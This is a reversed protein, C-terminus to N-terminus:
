QLMMSPQMQQLQRLPTVATDNGDYYESDVNLPDCTDTFGWRRSFPWFIFFARGVINERPVTGWYRSDSSRVSNDGMMFYHNEPVNVVLGESLARQALHGHYGGKKSYIRSIAPINFDTIAKFTDAGKEKVYVLNDIIKLTDGPMGILRKIFFYGTKRCPLGETNFVTIDGRRPERFQFTFRDVFLHDGLSLWGHCLTEGKKFPKMYQLYGYRKFDANEGDIKKEMQCYKFVHDFSGPLHYTLGGINFQSWPFVVSRSYEIISGPDLTGARKIKADAAQVSYLAYQLFAPMHWLPSSGDPLKTDAIYHIGFLTPQMSSTPIKFPQMYLARLGFAVTLAVALIDVYERIIPHTHKPLIKTAKLPASQLFKEIEENNNMNLSKGDELLKDIKEKTNDALIDDNVHLLHALHKILHKLEKKQKRRKYFAFFNL